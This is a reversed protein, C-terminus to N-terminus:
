SLTFAYHYSPNDFWYLHLRGCAQLRQGVLLALASPMKMFIHFDTVGFQLADRFYQGVQNAYAVATEADIKELRPDPNGTGIQLWGEYQIKNRAVFEGVADHIDPGNTLEAIIASPKLSPTVIWSRNLIFDNPMNDSLWFQKKFDSVNIERAWVGIRSIRINFRYGWAFAAPLPLVTRFQIRTTDGQPGIVSFVDNLAPVIFSSWESITPMKEPPVLKKWDVDLLASTPRIASSRVAIEITAQRGRRAYGYNFIQEFISKALENIPTESPFFIVRDIASSMQKLVDRLNNIGSSNMVVMIPIEQQYYSIIHLALSSLDSLSPSDFDFVIGDITKGRLNQNDAQLIQIGRFQLADKLTFYGSKDSCSYLVQLPIDELNEDLPLTTLNSYFDRYYKKIIHNYSAIRECISDWFWVAVKFGGSNEERKSIRTIVDQTTVDRPADTVIILTDLKHPFKRAKKIEAEIEKETPQKDTKRLKCQAGRFNGGADFPQGYVDVGLQKQGSRGRRDTNPDQWELRCLDCILQEFEDDSKLRPFNTDLRTPL